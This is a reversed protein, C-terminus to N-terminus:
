FEKRKWAIWMGVLDLRGLIDSEDHGMSVKPTMLQSKM